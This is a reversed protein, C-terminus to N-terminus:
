NSVLYGAVYGSVTFSNGGGLGFSHFLSVQEGAAVYVDVTYKDSFVFGTSAGNNVTGQMAVNSVFPFSNPLGNYLQFTFQPVFAPAAAFNYTSRVFVDFHYLGATNLTIGSSSAVAQAPNLNYRATTNFICYDNAAAAQSFSYAFRITNNFANGLTQWSPASLGNSTLVQGTVGSSGSVYLRGLLQMSGNVDLKWQPNTTGIGVNGANDITVRPTAQITFHLKGTGNGVGTGLDIDEANGSFSGLYGRYLGNENLSVFMGAAGDLKLLHAVSGSKIELPQTPTSTGIGVNQSQGLMSITCCCGTILKKM